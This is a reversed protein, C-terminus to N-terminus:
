EGGSPLVKPMTGRSTTTLIQAPDAAAQLHLLFADLVPGRHFTPFQVSWGGCVCWAYLTAPTKGDETQVPRVEETKLDHTM